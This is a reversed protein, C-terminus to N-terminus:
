KHFFLDEVNDRTEQGITNVPTAEPKPFPIVEASTAKQDGSLLTKQNNDYEKEHVQKRSYIM